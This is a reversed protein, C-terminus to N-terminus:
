ESSSISSNKTFGSFRFFSTGINLKQWREWRKPRSSCVFTSTINKWSHPPKSNRLFTNLMLMFKFFPPIFCSRSNITIQLNQGQFNVGYLRATTPSSRPVTGLRGVYWMMIRNAKSECWNRFVDEKFHQKIYKSRQNTHGEVRDGKKERRYTPPKCM